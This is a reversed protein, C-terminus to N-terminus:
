MRKLVFHARDSRESASRFSFGDYMGVIEFLDPPIMAQIESLRYIRQRHVETTEGEVSMLSFENIQIHDITSYRSRRRYHVGRAFDDESYNQFYHRSNKQTCVDFVFLGGPRLYHAVNLFVSICADTSLCYNFSDYTCVVADYKKKLCLTSMDACLFRFPYGRSRAKRLARLVMEHSKDAGTLLLGTRALEMIISGTGCALDLVERVPIGGKQFSRRLYDAWGAYDVHFM